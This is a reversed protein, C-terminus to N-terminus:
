AMWISIMAEEIKRILYELGKVASYKELMRV